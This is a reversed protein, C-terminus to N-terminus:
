KKGRKEVEIAIQAFLNPYDKKIDDIGLDHLHKIFAKINREKMLSEYLKKAEATPLEYRIIDFGNSKSIRTQNEFLAKKLTCSVLVITKDTKKLIPEKSLPNWRSSSFLYDIEDWNIGSM